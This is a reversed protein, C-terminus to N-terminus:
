HLKSAGAAVREIQNDKLVEETCHGKFVEFTVVTPHDDELDLQQRKENVCPLIIKEICINTM